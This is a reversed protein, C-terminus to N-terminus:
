YCRWSWRLRNRINITGTKTGCVAYVTYTYKGKELDIKSKGSPIALRYSTAGNLILTMTGGTENVMNVKVTKAPKKNAANKATPCKKLVFKQNAKKVELTGTQDAGCALFRYQYKGKLVEVSTKGVGLTFYYSSAGSLSLNVNAGTQNNIVLKLMTSNSAAPQAAMAALPQWAFSLMLAISLLVIWKSPKYM